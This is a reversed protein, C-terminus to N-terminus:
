SVGSFHDVRELFILDNEKGVAVEAFPHCSMRVLLDDEPLAIAGGM